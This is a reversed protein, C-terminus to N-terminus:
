SSFAASISELFISISQPEVLMTTVLGGVAGALHAEHGINDEIRKMAFISYGVYLLAFLIAPLPLVGFLYLMELPWFLCFSFVVGSVAGSAGIAIYSPENRYKLLPYLSGVLLAVVYLVLFWQSGLVREIHVGFIVLVYMNLILHVYNAHLFGSTALGHYERNRVMRYPELALFRYLGPNRFAVITVLSTLVLLVLTVPTTEFSLGM